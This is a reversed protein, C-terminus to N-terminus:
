MRYLVTVIASRMWHNVFSEDEMFTTISHRAKIQIDIPLRKSDMRYGVGASAFVMFDRSREPITYDVSSQFWVEDGSENEFRSNLTSNKYGLKLALEPGAILYLSRSKLPYLQVHVPVGLYTVGASRKMWIIIKDTTPNGDASTAPTSSDIYKYRNSILELGTLVSIRSSYAVERLYHFQYGPSSGWVDNLADVKKDFYLESVNVSAGIHISQALAVHTSALLLSILILPRM